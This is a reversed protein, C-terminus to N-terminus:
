KRDIKPILDFANFEDDTQKMYRTFNLRQLVAVSQDNGPRVKAYLRQFGAQFGAEVVVKVTNTMIGRHHISSWYGIEAEKTDATKIDCAASALGNQDLTIFLFHTNNKWGDCGWQYFWEADAKPYPNGSLRKRFLWDYIKKENCVSVISDFFADSIQVDIMRCVHYSQQTLHNIIKTQKFQFHPEITM